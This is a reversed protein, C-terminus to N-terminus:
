LAPPASPGFRVAEVQRGSPIGLLMACGTSIWFLDQVAPTVLTSEVMNHMLLATLFSLLAYWFPRDDNEWPTLACRVALTGVLLLILAWAAAAPIGSKVSLALFANHATRARDLDKLSEDVDSGYGLMPRDKIRAIFIAWQEQRWQFTEVDKPDSLVSFREMM